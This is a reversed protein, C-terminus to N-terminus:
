AGRRRGGWLARLGFFAMDKVRRALEFSLSIRPDTGFTM